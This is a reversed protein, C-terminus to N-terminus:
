NVRQLLKVYSLFDQMRGSDNWMPETEPRDVLYDHVLYTRMGLQKAIMDELPDNGVMMCTEASVNLHNLVEQYFKLQPKCASNGEFSSVYNFQKPNLQAWEIRKDVALKPFLPNTAIALQYGKEYLLDVAELMSPNPQIHQKLADFPGAYFTMFREWLYAPDYTCLKQMEEMFVDQNSRDSVDAVMLKTAKWIIKVLTEPDFLDRLEYALAKFYTQEFAQDDIALLTGDLDFLITNLTKM